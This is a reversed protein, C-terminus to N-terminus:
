RASSTSSRASRRSRSASSGGRRRTRRPTARDGCAGRRHVDRGPQLPRLEAHQARGQAGQRDRRAREGGARARGAAPDADDLLRAAGDQARRQGLHSRRVRARRHVGHVARRRGQCLRHLPRRLRRQQDVDERRQPALQRGAAERRADQRRARGLGLGVREPRLRRRDRRQRAAAPVAGEAGAHRVARAAPDDPEGPRRVDDRVVGIARDARHRRAVIGQRSRPRRVAEPVAIGLLGLEGCRQILARALQWDKQELRDLVPLVESDVFETTTQAM